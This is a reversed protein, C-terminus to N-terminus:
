LWNISVELRVDANHAGPPPPQNLSHIPGAVVGLLDYAEDHSADVNVWIYIERYSYYDNFDTGFVSIDRVPINSQGAADVVIEVARRVRETLWDTMLAEATPQIEIPVTTPPAISQSVNHEKM